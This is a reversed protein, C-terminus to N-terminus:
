DVKQNSLVFRIATTESNDTLYNLSKDDDLYLAALVFQMDFVKSNSYQGWSYSNIWFVVSAARTRGGYFVDLKVTLPYLLFSVPDVQYFSLYAKLPQPQAELLAQQLEANNKVNEAFVVTPFDNIIVMTDVANVTWNVDLTDVQDNPNQPNNAFYYLKGSYTGKTSALCNAIDAKSLGSNGDSDNDGLCSTLSLAAICGLALFIFKLHKM